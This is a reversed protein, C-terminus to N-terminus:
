KSNSDISVSQFTSHGSKPLKSLSGAYMKTSITLIRPPIEFFLKMAIDCDRQQILHKDSKDISLVKQNLMSVVDKRSAKRREKM